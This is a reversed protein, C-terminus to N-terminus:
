RLHHPRCSRQEPRLVVHTDGRIPYRSGPDPVPFRPDPDSGPRLRSDPSRHAPSHAAPSTRRDGPRARRDGPRRRDARAVVQWPRASSANSTPTISGSCASCSRSTCASARRVRRGRWARRRLRARLGDAAARAHHLGAHHHGAPPAAAIRQRGAGCRRTRRRAHPHGRGRRRVARWRCARREGGTARAAGADAAGAIPAAAELPPPTAGPIRRCRRRCPWRRYTPRCCAARPDPM